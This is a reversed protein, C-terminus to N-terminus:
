HKLFVLSSNINSSLEESERLNNMEHPHRVYKVKTGAEFGECDLKEKNSWLCVSVRYGLSLRYSELYGLSTKISVEGISPIFAYVVTVEEYNGQM